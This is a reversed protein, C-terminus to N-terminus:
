VMRSNWNYIPLNKTEEEFIDKKNRLEYEAQVNVFYNLSMGFYRALRWCVDDSMRNKGNLIKGLAASSIGLDRALKYASLNLPEMWDEKLYDGFTGLNIEYTNM